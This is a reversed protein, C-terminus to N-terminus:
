KQTESDRKKWSALLAAVDNVDDNTLPQFNKGRGASQAFNPMGLDHRGTIVIRRLFQDSVLALFAPQNIAGGKETGQGQEGHCGACSMMFVDKGRSVDGSKTVAYKPLPAAV